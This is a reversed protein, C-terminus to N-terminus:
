KFLTFKVIRFFGYQQMEKLFGSAYLLLFSSVILKLNINEMEDMSRLM